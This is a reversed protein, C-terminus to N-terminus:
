KSKEKLINEATAVVKRYFTTGTLSISDTASRGTRLAGNQGVFYFEGELDPRTFKQYKRSTSVRVSCKLRETLVLIIKDSLKM